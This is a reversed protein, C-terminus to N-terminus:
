KIILHMCEQASKAVEKDDVTKLQNIDPFKKELDQQFCACYNKIKAPDMGPNSAKAECAGTMKDREAQPWGKSKTCAPLAIMLLLCLLTRKM